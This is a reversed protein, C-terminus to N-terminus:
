SDIHFNSMLYYILLNKAQFAKTADAPEVAAINEKFAIFSSIYYLTSEGTESLLSRLFFAEDLM